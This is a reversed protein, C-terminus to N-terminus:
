ARLLGTMPVLPAATFVRRAVLAPDLGFLQASAGAFLANSDVTPALDRDEYLRSLGPWNALVRGGAVQGGALLAASATGHDTGGTGNPRATRGFETAVLVLTQGWAPGLGSKLTTIVGDLQGLAAALRGAQAAHTDWGTMELTAIRPGDPRALFSAALRALAAPNAAGTADGAMARAAMAESWLAHLQADGEYLSAVRDMLAQDADPLRSPAYSTVPVAGRLAQPVTAAVAVAADAQGPLLALLRNLWGDKLAYAATGGTELVNQADFHSRERYPSAIAHVALAEGVAFLGAFGALAPHAAFDTTLPLPAPGAPLGFDGRLAALQRDGVPPLAALGDMAGRLIIFVLRRESAAAALALRPTLSILGTALLTRRSIM